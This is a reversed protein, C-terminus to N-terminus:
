PPIAHRGLQYQLWARQQGQGVRDGILKILHTDRLISGHGSCQTAQSRDQLVSSPLIHHRVMHASVTVCSDAPPPLSAARSSPVHHLSSAPFSEVRWCSGGANMQPPM